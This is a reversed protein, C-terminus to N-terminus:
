WVRGYGGRPCGKRRKDNNYSFIFLIDIINLLFPAADVVRSGLLPIYTNSVNYNYTSLWIINM